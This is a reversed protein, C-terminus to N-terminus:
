KKQIKEFEPSMFCWVIVSIFFGPVGIAAIVFGYEFSKIAYSSSFLREIAGVVFFLISILIIHFSQVACWGSRACWPNTQSVFSSNTKGIFERNDAYLADM